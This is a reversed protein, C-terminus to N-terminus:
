KTKKDENCFTILNILVKFVKLLNQALSHKSVYM